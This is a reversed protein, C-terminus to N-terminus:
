CCDHPTGTLLSCSSERFKAGGRSCVLINDPKVDRHIVQHAHLHALARAAQAVLVLLEDLSKHSHDTRGIVSALDQM